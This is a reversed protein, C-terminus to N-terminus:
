LPSLPRTHAPSKPWALAVKAVHVDLYDVFRAHFSRQRPWPSPPTALAVSGHGLRRQRPWPSAATALAVSGHGLRRHRPWPSPATALSACPGPPGSVISSLPRGIPLPVHGAPHPFHQRSPNVYGCGPGRGPGDQAPFIAAPVGLAGLGTIKGHRPTLARRAM